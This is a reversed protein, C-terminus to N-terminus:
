LTTNRGESIRPGRQAPFREASRSVADDSHGRPARIASYNDASKPRHSVFQRDHLRRPFGNEGIARIPSCKRRKNYTIKRDCSDVILPSDALARSLVSARLQWEKAIDTTGFPANEILRGLNSLAKVYFRLIYFYKGYLDAWLDCNKGKWSRYVSQAYM